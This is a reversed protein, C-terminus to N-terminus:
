EDLIVPNPCATWIGTTTQGGGLRVRTGTVAVVSGAEDLVEVQAGQRRATYGFPWRIPLTVSGEVIVTGADANAVLDGEIVSAACGIGGGTGTLIRVQDPRFSIASEVPASCAAIALLMVVAM